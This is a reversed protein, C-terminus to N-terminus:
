KLAVVESRVLMAIRDWYYLPIEFRPGARTVAIV